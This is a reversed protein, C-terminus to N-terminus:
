HREKMINFLSRIFCINDAFKQKLQIGATYNLLICTSHAYRSVMRSGDKRLYLIGPVWTVGELRRTAETEEINGVALEAEITRCYELCCRNRHAGNNGDSPITLRTYGNPGTKLLQHYNQRKEHDLLTVGTSYISQNYGVHLIMSSESELHARYNDCVSYMAPHFTIIAVDVRCIIQDYQSLEIAATFEEKEEPPIDLDRVIEM